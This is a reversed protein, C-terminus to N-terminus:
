SRQACQGLVSQVRLLMQYEPLHKREGVEAAANKLHEALTFRVVAGSSNRALPREAELNYDQCTAGPRGQVLANLFLLSFAREYRFVNNRIPELYYTIGNAVRVASPLTPIAARMEEVCPGHLGQYCPEMARSAKLYQEQNAKFTTTIWELLQEENEVVIVEARAPVSCGFLVIAAAACRGMLCRGFRRYAANWPCVM